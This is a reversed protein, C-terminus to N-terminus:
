AAAKGDRKEERRIKKEYDDLVRRVIESRNFGTKEKQENLFQMLREPVGVSLMTQAM